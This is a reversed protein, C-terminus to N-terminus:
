VRMNTSEDLCEGHTRVFLERSTGFSTPPNTVHHPRRAGDPVRLRQPGLDAVDSCPAIPPIPADAANVQDRQRPEPDAFKAYCIGIFDDHGVEIALVAGLDACQAAVLGFHDGLLRGCDIRLHSKPYKSFRNIRGVDRGDQVARVHERVPNVEERHVGPSRCEAFGALPSDPSDGCPRDSEARGPKDERVV